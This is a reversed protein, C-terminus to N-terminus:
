VSFLSSFKLRLADVSTKTVHRASVAMCAPRFTHTTSLWITVDRCNRPHCKALPWIIVRVTLTRIRGLTEEDHRGTFSNFLLLSIYCTQINQIKANETNRWMIVYRASLVHSDNRDHSWNWFSYRNSYYRIATQNHRSDARVRGQNTTITHMICISRCIM